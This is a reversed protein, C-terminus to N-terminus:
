KQLAGSNHIRKQILQPTKQTANKLKRAKRLLQQCTKRENIRRKVGTMNSSAQFSPTATDDISEIDVESDESIREIVQPMLCTAQTPNTTSTVADILTCSTDGNEVNVCKQTLTKVSNSRKRATKTKERTHRHGQNDGNFSEIDNATTRKVDLFSSEKEVVFVLGSDVMVEEVKYNLPIDFHFENQIGSIKIKPEDPYLEHFVDETIKRFISVTWKKEALVLFRRDRSSCVVNIRLKHEM